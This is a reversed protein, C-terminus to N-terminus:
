NLVFRGSRGNAATGPFAASHYVTSFCPEDRMGAAGQKAHTYAANYIPIIRAYIHIIFVTRTYILSFVVVCTHALPFGEPWYSHQLYKSLEVREECVFVKGVRRPVTSTPNLFFGDHFIGDGAARCCGVGVRSGSSSAAAAAASHNLKRYM